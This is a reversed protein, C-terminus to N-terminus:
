KVERISFKIATFQGCNGGLTRLMAQVTFPSLIANQIKRSTLKSQITVVKVKKGELAEVGKGTIM